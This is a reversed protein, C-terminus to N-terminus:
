DTLIEAIINRLWISVQSKTHRKHWFIYYDIMPLKIPVQKIILEGSLTAPLAVRHPLTAIMDDRILDYNIQSFTPVSVRIFRQMNKQALYNDIFGDKMGLPAVMAHSAKTYNEITIPKRALPHKKSLLCVFRDGYLRKQMLTDPAHWGVSIVFNVLEHELKMRSYDSELPIVTLRVGLTEKELRQVLTPLMRASVEDTTSIVFDGELRSPDFTTKQSLADVENLISVASQGVALAKETPRLGTATRIFLEDEFWNRLKALHKSAASQTIGRERAAGIISGQHLIAKFTLLLEFRDFNRKPM